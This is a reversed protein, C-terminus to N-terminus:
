AVEVPEKLCVRHATGDCDIVEIGAVGEDDEDVSVEQPSNIVYDETTKDALEFGIEILDREADYRIAALAVWASDPNLDLPLVAVGAERRSAVVARSLREFYEQWDHKDLTM